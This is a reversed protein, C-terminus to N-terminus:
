KTNGPEVNKRHTGEGVPHPFVRFFQANNFLKWYRYQKIIPMEQFEFQTLGATPLFVDLPSLDGCDREVIISTADWIANCM